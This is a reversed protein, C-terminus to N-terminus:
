FQVFYEPLCWVLASYLLVIVERLWCGPYRVLQMGSCGSTQEEWICLQLKTALKKVILLTNLSLKKLTVTSLNTGIAVDSVLDQESVLFLDILTTDQHKTKYGQEIVSDCFPQPQFPGRSTMKDLGGQALDGLAHLGLGHGPLKQIDEIFPVRCSRQHAREM